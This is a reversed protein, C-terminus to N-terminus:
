QLPIQILISPSFTGYKGGYEGYKNWISQANYKSGYTGYPNWISTASYKDCNICGLNVEHDKGGYMRLNKQSFTNSAFAISLIFSFIFKM